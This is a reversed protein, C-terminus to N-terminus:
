NSNVISFLADWHDPNISPPIGGAKNEIAELAMRYKKKQRDSPSSSLNHLMDSLKVQLATPQSVLNTVYGTYDSGKEHTLLLVTRIIERAEAESDSADVIMQLLEDENEVNGYAIADEFTDHLLAAKQLTINGPYYQKVIETVAVPHSIYEGGSRRTQGHHAKVAVNYIKELETGAYEKILERVLQMM